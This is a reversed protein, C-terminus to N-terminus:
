NKRFNSNMEKQMQKQMAINQSHINDMYYKLNDMQDDNTRPEDVQQIKEREKREEFERMSKSVDINTKYKLGSSSVTTDVYDHVITNPSPNPVLDSKHEILNDVFFLNFTFILFFFSIFILQSIISKSDM